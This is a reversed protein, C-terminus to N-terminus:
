LILNLIKIICIDYMLILYYDHIKILDILFDYYNDIM